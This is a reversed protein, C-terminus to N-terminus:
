VAFGWGAPVPLEITLPEPETPHDPAFRERLLTQLVRRGDRWTNLHSDGHRRPAEFSPVEDIRLRAKVARVIIETEIEFGDATLVLSRLGSRRFACFGYCLDTFDRGYLVNVLSRLAANGARRVFGMDRTGGGLVFRSGKVFDCDSRLRDIYLGIEAPDMSGDADLMVVFEGSAAAFGARLAAGKGPREQHVIRVDPRTARAAAVTDDTSADVLIVESVFAPLRELVWGINRAENKTPIVVSVGASAWRTANAADSVADATLDSDARGNEGFPRAPFDRMRM